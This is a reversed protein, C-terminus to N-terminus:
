RRKHGLALMMGCAGALLVTSLLINSPHSDVGTDPGPTPKPPTPKPPTPTPSSQKEFTATLTHDATVSTFTHSSVAGVSIGDAQVDKIRYGTDPAITFTKDAQENVSVTGSPTITGGTGATATITFVRVPRKTTLTPYSDEGTKWSLYDTHSDALTNLNKLLKDPAQMDASSLGAAGTDSPGNSDEDLGIGHADPLLTTDYYNSDLTGGARKIGAIGGLHTLDARSGTAQISGASYTNEVRCSKGASKFLDGTIGGAEISIYSGTAPNITINGRNYSNAIISDFNQDSGSVTSTIGGIELPSATTINFSGSNECNLIRTDVSAGVIGGYNTAKLMSAEPTRISLTNSCRDITSKNSVGVVGGICPSGFESNANAILNGNGSVHVNEVRTNIVRGALAGVFDYRKSWTSEAILDGNVVLNVNSLVAPNESSGVNGFLGIILSGGNIVTLDGLTVTHGQGNFTGYFFTSSEELRNGIPQWAYGSLDIDAALNITKGRMSDTGDNILAALGSLEERTSLSFVTDTSNYWRTDAEIPTLAPLVTIETTAKVGSGDTATATVTVTGERDGTLIGSSEDITASGTGDAVSWHMDKISANDPKVTSRMLLSSQAHVQSSVHNITIKEVWVPDIVTLTAVTSEALVSNSDTDIVACKFQAGDVERPVNLNAIVSEKGPEYNTDNDLIVWNESGKLKGFWRYVPHVATFRVDCTADFSAMEGMRATFNEPNKKFTQITDGSPEVAELAASDENIQSTWQGLSEAASVHSLGSFMTFLLVAALAFVLRSGKQSTSLINM